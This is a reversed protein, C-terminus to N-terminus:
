RIESSETHRYTLGHIKAWSPGFLTQVQDASSPITGAISFLNIGSLWGDDTFMHVLLVTELYMDGLNAREAASRKKGGFMISLELSFENKFVSHKRKGCVRPTNRVCVVCICKAVHNNRGYNSPIGASNMLEEVVKDIFEVAEKEEFIGSKVLTKWVSPSSESESELLVAPFRSLNLLESNRYYHLGYHPSFSLLFELSLQLSFFTPLAPPPLRNPVAYACRRLMPGLAGYRYKTNLWMQTVPCLVSSANLAPDHPFCPTPASPMRVSSQPQGNLSFSRHVPFFLESKTQTLAPKTAM